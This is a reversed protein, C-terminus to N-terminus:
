EIRLAALPAVRAARRAPLYCATLAAAVLALPTVTFVVPDFASVNYLLSSVARGIGLALLLGFVLGALNVGLGERLVLSIVQGPTSGLAMRIGIERTRKSMLYAKVSYTGVVALFLALGGFISFVRAFTRVAWYTTTTDRYEALTQVALIPLSEDASRIERRLVQLGDATSVGPRFHVHVYVTSRFVSGSPLYLHASPAKDWLSQRLGPAVGVILWPGTGQGDVSIQRGVPDDNGFLVRALPQDIIAVPPGDAGQEEGASFDRGRLLSLGLTRFYGSGVVAVVSEKHSEGAPAGAIQVRRWEELPSFAVLSSSTAMEVEPRARLREVVRRYTTRARAEDYGGLGADLTAVARGDFRYGPDSTSANVAGRVFLGAATLLGLSLAFQGAMLLNRGSWQRSRGEASAQGAQAKLQPLIATHSLRWAPGLGFVITSLGCFVLTAALVRVDPTPDFHIPLPSLSVFSSWLLRSASYSVILGGAGGALSLLFGETLLQRVIRARSSGLALRMAMEKQRSAGRAMVMNALNLGAIILVLSAIVMVLASYRISGADNHPASSINLRPLPNVILDQGKNEVPFERELRAAENQLARTATAHTVGDKLRGVVMLAENRRDALSGTGSTTTSGTVTDWTGTPVWIEPSLSAATGTFGRPTVGVIVLPRANVVIRTGLVTPSAGRKVWSDYSIIAVPAATGPREEDATFVRGAAPTVGLTSFYNATAASILTRRTVDGERVGAFTLNFAMVDSFVGANERIDVYTPYSFDRYDGPHTRDRSYLGVVEGPKERGPLPRLVFANVFSFVATNVGIAAALVLVAAVTFGPSKLLIRVALRADALLNSM